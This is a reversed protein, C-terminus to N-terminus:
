NQTRLEANTRRLARFWWWALAAILVAGGVAAALAGPFPEPINQALIGFATMTGVVLPVMTLDARLLTVYSALLAVAALVAGALWGTIAGGEPTGTGLVAFAVLLVAAPARRRTWGATWGDVFTLASLLIATRTLFGPISDTAPDLFPLVSGLPGVTPTHAWEPTRLLASGASVAAAVLGAAM